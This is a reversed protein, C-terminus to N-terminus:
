TDKGWEVNSVAGFLEMLSKAQRIKTKGAKSLKSVEPIDFLDLKFKFLLDEDTNNDMVLSMIDVALTLAELQQEIDLKYEARMAQKFLTYNAKNIEHTEIAIVETTWGLDGTLITFDEHERDLADINYEFNTGDAAQLIVSIMTHEPNDFKVSRITNELLINM